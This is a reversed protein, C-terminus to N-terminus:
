IFFDSLRQARVLGLIRCQRPSTVLAFTFNIQLTFKLGDGFTFTFFITVNKKLLEFPYWTPLYRNLTLFLSVLVVDM